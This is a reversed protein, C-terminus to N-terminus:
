LHNSKSILSLNLFLFVLELIPALFVLNKSGMIKFPRIFIIMQLILKFCFIGLIYLTLFKMSILVIFTIYFLALSIPFLSLLFLEYNKYRNGTTFHRTKQRKWEEYSEKPVSYTVADKNFIVSTNKRNGAENVFLDDDGSPIYYHSRFGRVSDYLEKTYALNRGVGMYPIKAKGFSLYQIAIMIADFRILKNLFGKKKSYPGAGLVLMKNNQFGQAMESLWNKNAPSCDADTFLLRDYKAAKIGLTLAMKKQHGDKGSDLIDVVRLKEYQKELALLVDLSEDWSRDNVVIIEYNPYDQNLFEPLFRALNREENRAAIVISIPFDTNKIETPKSKFSLRAFFFLYYFVQITFTALFIFAICNSINFALSLTTKELLKTTFYFNWYVFTTNKFINYIQM